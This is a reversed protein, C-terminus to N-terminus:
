WAAMPVKPKEEEVTSFHAVVMSVATLADIVRRDQKKVNRSTSPRDFRHKDGPLRRAIANLVHRRLERHGTHHIWRRSVAEVMFDYDDQAFSNTQPRDVVTVDLEDSLWEAIENAKSMDMVVTDIPNREHISLFAAKVDSAPLMTGDRPPTLIEPDGLYQHSEDVRLYPVLATTDQLWAFDAGVAIPVGEPITDSDYCADWDPEPIAVQSSRTPINCTLRLWDEGFDLTVSVLKEELDERSIAALPNAEKVSGIDRALRRDQVMWELYALTETEALLFGGTREKVEAAGRITERMEEFESGPEGATSITLIQGRRKRLKGKWLRYLKLDPHRHLEDVLALTPIVGDGTDVAAAYVKIGEGGTRLSKIRRYGRQVVFLSRLRRSRDVFGAAQAFLIEAQDRSAAGLPVWPAPTHECHYLAIAALLTTKANGEPILIWVEPKGEFVKGVIMLQFPEIEWRRGSDLTLRSSWREFHRVTFPRM